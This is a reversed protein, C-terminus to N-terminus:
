SSTLEFPIETNGTIEATLETETNYRAPIYMEGVPEPTDNAYDFEGPIPRSAIIEVSMKGAETQLSYSGNEIKASFAKGDGELKRFLIRGDQVPEGDFTVRGSVQHMVPGDSQGCGALVATGALLCLLRTTM